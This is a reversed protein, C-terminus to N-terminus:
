LEKDERLKLKLAEILKSGKATKDTGGLEKYLDYVASISYNLIGETLASEKSGAMKSNSPYLSGAILCCSCYLVYFKIDTIETATFKKLEKLHSEIKRGWLAALYYTNLENNKHFLKSYSDDDELLTSPRARAFDPKQMLISMLCQSIFPVSIIEKPKKGENKYFNKRRDYYLGRPKLYDEIQRHVQDTARLSSKPIPTQSNTARIIRDRTEESEPVIVRVLIDRKEDKVKDRNVSYFRYIESSTQLGNVIEPNHVVLEKGGPAAVESALITVGNNLWWFEENGPNELTGQIENNVNTKGQYDRVNSEFIHKILKGDEDSIFNFFDSLNTLAIFVQESTSIPTESVKLRFVDNPREQTMKVLHEAGIFSVTVITGPLKEVIDRKLDEAQEQVNPHVDVGKSVYFVSVKLKPKKTILGIYTKKFLEFASLVKDNYRGEFDDRDFDLDFLNRSLRSLKLLPEESFSKEFKSQILVFEIDVNKKYKDSINEDEKVLEGNVFLYISDAGGDHSKGAVGSSIEDYSLEYDKLVQLASYFEFFDSISTSEQLSDMEQRVIEDLLIQNNKSM